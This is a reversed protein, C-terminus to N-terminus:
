IEIHRPEEGRMAIEFARDYGAEINATFRATDFLPMTTRNGDLASRVRALKARDTALDLALRRYDEEDQAIMEDLGIARLLSAAMRATYGQGPKTIIPLGSRLADSATAGANYVFSDLFLDACALQAVYDGYSRKGSFILRAPDVGRASAERRLNGEVGPNSAYLWLISGDVQSLLDMWVDFATETLKYSNNIACFIFADEPLGADARTPGQGHSDILADQVQYQDPLYIIKESYFRQADPPILTKDALIYDIFPAGMSGPYGLYNIQVAAPRHAVIGPRSATTYGALDVLIDIGNQRLREAAARDGLTDLDEFRDFARLFRRRVDDDTPPGISYGHIEFRSRDHREILRAMLKGVPHHRFDASLYGIRLRAPRASALRLKPLPVPQFSAAFRKARLLQRAPEDELALTSFPSVVEGTLGLGPLRVADKSFARWDCSLALLYLRGVMAPGHDPRIALARNWWSLAEDFRGMDQLLSALSTIAEVFDPKLAAARRYGEIAEGTRSSSGLANALNNYAEAFDPNIALARRCAAIAEDRRGCSRLAAGLNNWCQALDPKVEVAREYCGVAEEYRGLSRLSSGLNNHAEAFDPQIEVARRYSSAAEDFLKQAQLLTGLAYHTPAQEPRLEIMHRYSSAAADFRALGRQASALLAWVTHSRPFRKALPEAERLVEERRNQNLKALLAEIQQRPPDSVM